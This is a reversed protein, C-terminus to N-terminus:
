MEFGIKAAFDGFQKEYHAQTASNEAKSFDCQMRLNGMQGIALCRVSAICVDRSVDGLKLFEEVKPNEINEMLDKSVQAIKPDVPMFLYGCELICKAWESQPHTNDGQPAGYFVKLKEQSEYM